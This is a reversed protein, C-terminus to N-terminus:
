QKLKKEEPYIFDSIFVSIAAALPIALIAGLAGALKLGVLISIIVVVSNLGVAKRMVNPVLLHNEIQQIILYMAVVALGTLPSQIFGILVGPIAASIPGIYPVVEFAAAVLALLLAYPVGLLTLGIYVMIGIIINLIMQGLLWHGMKQQIRDMLTIVYKQHENPIIARFFGGVSKSQVNWYFSLSIVMVFGFIGKFLTNAQSFIGESDDSLRKGINLLIESKQINVLKDGLLYQYRALWESIYQSYKPLNLALQKLQEGITPLLLSLLYFLGGLSIVYILLVAIVRPVKYKELWDVLPAIASVIIFSIFIIVIVDRIYYLFLTLAAILLLRFITNSSIHVVIPAKM